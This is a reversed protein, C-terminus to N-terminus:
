EEEQPACYYQKMLRDIPERYAEIVEDQSAQAELDASAEWREFIVGIKALQDRIADFQTHVSETQHPNAEKYIRLKSM